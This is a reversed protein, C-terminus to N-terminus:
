NEAKLFYEKDRENNRHSEETIKGMTDSEM